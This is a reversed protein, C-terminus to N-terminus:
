SPRDHAHCLHERDVHAGTRLFTLRVVAGDEGDPNRQAGRLGVDSMRYTTYRDLSRPRPPRGLARRAARRASAGEVPEGTKKPWFGGSLRASMRTCDM